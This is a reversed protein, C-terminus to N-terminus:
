SQDSFFTDITSIEETSIPTATDQLFQAADSLEADTIDDRTNDQLFQAATDDTDVTGLPPTNVSHGRGLVFLIGILLVILIILSLLVRKFSTKHTNNQSHEM